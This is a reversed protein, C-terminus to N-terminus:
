WTCVPSVALSMARPRVVESPAASRSFVKYPLARIAPVSSFSQISTGCIPSSRRELGLWTGRENNVPIM